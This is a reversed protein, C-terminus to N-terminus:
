YNSPIEFRDHIAIPYRNPFRYDSTHCFNGGFMPGNVGKLTPVSRFEAHLYESGAITRRILILHPKAPNFDANGSNSNQPNFLPISEFETSFGQNNAASSKSRFINVTIAKM